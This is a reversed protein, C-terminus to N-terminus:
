LLDLIEGSLDLLKCINIADKPTEGALSAGSLEMLRYDMQEAILAASDGGASLLKERLRAMDLNELGVVQYNNFEPSSIGDYHTSLISVANKGNLYRAVARVLSSGEAPNTGRAFEDLAIFSLGSKLDDTIQKLKVLEAAFTSLGMGPSELDESVLHLHDFLPLVAKEAFVYFGTQFLTINLTFTKLAVSKGGMNAGTLIAAGRRLKVSLPTFERGSKRLFHEILPNYVGEFILEATSDSIVPKATRNEAALKAKQLLLDLRGVSSVNALFEEAYSLVRSSLERRIILEEDEEACVTLRRKDRLLLRSEEDRSASIAAELRRKETRIELLKPSASDAIFFTRLGEGGPDLVELARPMRRPLVCSLHLTNQLVGFCEDLEKLSLLFNKLEFLEIENLASDIGARKEFIPRIDKFQSLIRFIETFEEERQKYVDKIRGINDLEELLLNKEEPSYPKLGTALEAGYPTRLNLQDLVFRLGIDEKQQESLCIM